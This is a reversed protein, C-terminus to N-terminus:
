EGAEFVFDGDVSRYPKEMGTADFGLAQGGGTIAGNNFCFAIRLLGNGAGCVLLVVV